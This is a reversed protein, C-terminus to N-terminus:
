FTSFDDDADAVAAAVNSETPLSFSAPTDPSDRHRRRDHGHSALTAIMKTTETETTSASLMVIRGADPAHNALCYLKGDWWTTASSAENASAGTINLIMKQKSICDDAVELVKNRFAVDAVPAVQKKM